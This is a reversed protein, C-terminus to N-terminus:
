IVEIIFPGLRATKLKRPKGKIKSDHLLVLYGNKIYKIKIHRDHWTNQQQKKVEQHHIVILREEELIHLQHVREEKEM